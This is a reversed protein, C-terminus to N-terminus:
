VYRPQVGMLAGLAGSATATFFLCGVVLGRLRRPSHLMSWWFLLATVLFSVHQAIHWGPNALALDFASPAHWGWLAVMQLLSAAVPATLAHWAHSVAGHKGTSALAIRVRAPFAWLLVGLPKAMVLLPAAVLMLLEHELMHAAFSREGAEHLPSVLAGALVLWGSLYWAAGSRWPASTASRRALRVLGILYWILAVALPVTVWGDLTWAPGAATADGHAAAIAPALSLLAV